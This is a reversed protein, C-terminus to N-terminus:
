NLFLSKPLLKNLYCEVQTRELEETLNATLQRQYDYLDQLERLKQESVSKEIIKCYILVQM